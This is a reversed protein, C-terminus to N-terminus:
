ATLLSRHLETRVAAILDTEAPAPAPERPPAAAVGAAIREADEVLVIRGAESLVRALGLQHDDIAEGFRQLRPVVVPVHGRRIACLITGAGAHSVVKSARAFNEDIEAFSMWPAAHRAHPPCEGPGYQVTLEDGPLSALGDLFREFAFWPNSGVTAFIM